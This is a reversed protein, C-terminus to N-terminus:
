PKSSEFQKRVDTTDEDEVCDFQTLSSSESDGESVQASISQSPHLCQHTSDMALKKSLTGDTKQFMYKGHGSHLLLAVMVEGRLLFKYEILFVQRYKSDNTAVPLFELTLKECDSDFTQCGACCVHKLYRGPCNPDSLVGKKGRVDITFRPFSTNAGRALANRRCRDIVEDFSPFVGLYKKSPQDHYGIWISNNESQFPAVQLSTSLHSGHNGPDSLPSFCTLVLKERRGM